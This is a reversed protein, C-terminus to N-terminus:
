ITIYDADAEFMEDVMSRIEDLTLLSATLPDMQVAQYIYEREGEVFGTVALEQVNLSTRNLAALGPPLDGVHCPHLGGRDAMIPVEVIGGRLLNTILDTNCVNGNFVYPVHTEIANLIRTCFEHSREMPLMEDGYALRKLEEDQAKRREAWMAARDEMSSGWASVGWMRETFFRQLMEPTRRFYPTYESMHISSESVFAGFHKLIEFKVVDREYVEPKQMAEWILPYADEGNWNYELFWAMHNIGAAWYSIEEMSAGIYEALQTATGQVSHCLGVYRIDTLWDIAWCLMVMPNTYNLMLADPCIEEMTQAIEIMAPANKLFYFVGGPGSTDGVAQNIGYKLPITVHSRSDGVRISVVVYDAGELATALDTTAEVRAGVGQQAVMRRALAAMTEVKPGDIDMLCLTADQLSPWTLIDTILRRAFVHSGAGILTIKPM